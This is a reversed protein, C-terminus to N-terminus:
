TLLISTLQDLCARHRVFILVLFLQNRLQVYLSHEDKCPLSAHCDNMESVHWHLGVVVMVGHSKHEPNGPAL